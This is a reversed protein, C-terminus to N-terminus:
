YKVLLVLCLVDIYLSTYILTLPRKRWRAWPGRWLYLRGQESPLFGTLNVTLPAVTPAGGHVRRWKDLNDHSECSTWALAGSGCSVCTVTAFLSGLGARHGHWQKRKERTGNNKQLSHLLEEGPSRSYKVSARAFKSWSKSSFVTTRITRPDFIRSTAGLKHKWSVPVYVDSTWFNTSSATSQDRAFLDSSVDGSSDSCLLSSVWSWHPSKSLFSEKNFSNCSIVM